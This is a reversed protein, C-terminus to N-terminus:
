SIATVICFSGYLELLLTLEGSGSLESLAMSLAAGRSSLQHGWGEESSADQFFLPQQEPGGAGAGNTGIQTNLAPM